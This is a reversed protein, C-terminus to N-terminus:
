EPAHQKIWIRLTSLRREVQDLETSLEEKRDKDRKTKGSRPGLRELEAMVASRQQNLRLLEAEVDEVQGRGAVASAATAFPAARERESQERRAQVEARRRAERAEAEKRAQRLDLEAQPVLADNEATGTDREVHMAEVIGAGSMQESALRRRFDAAGEGPREGRPGGPAPGAGAAGGRSRRQEMFRRRAEELPDGPERAVEAARRVPPEMPTERPMVRPEDPAGGAFVRMPDFPSAARPPHAREVESRMGMM